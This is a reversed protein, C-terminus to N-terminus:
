RLWKELIQKKREACGAMVAKAKAIEAEYSEIESVIRQQDSLTPIFVVSNKLYKYHREYKGANTINMQRMYFYMYKTNAISADFKMLQTGDAGRVFPYDLYKFSCSHDGFVVLPLDTIPSSNNTYGSIVREAEQTIVPYLGENIIEEQSIKTQNGKISM